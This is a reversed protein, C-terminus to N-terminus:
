KLQSGCTQDRVGHRSDLRHRHRARRLLDLLGIRVKVLWSRFPREAAGHREAEAVWMTRRTTSIRHTWWVSARAL